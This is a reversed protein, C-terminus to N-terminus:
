TTGAANGGGRPTGTLLRVNWGFLRRRALVCPNRSRMRVRAPRAIMVARRALPRARSEAQNREHQGVGVPQGITAVEQQHNAAPV